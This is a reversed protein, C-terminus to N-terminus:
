ATDVPIYNYGSLFITTDEEPIHPRLIAAVNQPKDVGGYIFILAFLYHFVKFHL